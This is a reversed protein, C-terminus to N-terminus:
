LENLIVEHVIARMADAPINTARISHIKPSTTRAGKVLYYYHNKSAYAFELQRYSTYFRFGDKGDSITKVEICRDQGDVEYSHLDYGNKHDDRVLHVREALDPRGESILRDQEAKFAIDEGLRGLANRARQLAEWDIVRTSEPGAKGTKAELEEIPIVKINQDKPEAIDCLLWCFSHAELLRVGVFGEMELFDRIEHIVKLYASYNAWGCKGATKLNVGLRVFLADFNEPSLPLFQSCDKIFFLYAILPYKKGLLEVLPDFVDAAELEGTYFDYLLSELEFCRTSVRTEALINHVGYQQWKLLNNRKQPGDDIEVAHIVRDLIVGTGVEESRWKQWNLRRGAEAFVYEKYNEWDYIKGSTFSTFPYGDFELLHSRLNELEARFCLMSVRPVVIKYGRQLLCEGTADNYSVVHWAEPDLSRLKVERNGSKNDPDHVIIVRVPLQKQLAKQLLRKMTMGRRKRVSSAEQPQDPIETYNVTQFIRSGEERINGFWLCVVIRDKGSFAWEYCYKPNSQPSEPQKYNSWDSVDLGAERVLDYVRLRETPKLSELM